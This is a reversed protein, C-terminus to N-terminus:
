NDIKTMVQGFDLLRKDEQDTEEKKSVKKTLKINLIHVDRM